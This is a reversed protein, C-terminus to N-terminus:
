LLATAKRKLSLFYPSPSAFSSPFPNDRSFDPIWLIDDDSKEQIFGNEIGEEDVKEVLTQYEEDSISVLDPNEKPPVFQSMLSLYFNDKYHRSFYELFKKSQTITGPFVLHRLITGKVKGLDTVPHREKIWDMVPIIVDAYKSLGCFMRSVNHSISKCDLLYLDIYDDILALAERNEYGSSNWVVPLSFGKSIADDLASVISPIFHTGTVLNLTEAGIKELDLFVRSLEDKTIEIGWNEGDSGSIQRNQCYACHLPCGTFFVMGSGKEGCLPPEEGKHLGAWAIKISSSQHCRGMEGILRDVRCLNPCLTCSSYYQTENM